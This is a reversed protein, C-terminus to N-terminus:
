ADARMIESHEVALARYHAAMERYRARSIADKAEDARKEFMAARDRLDVPNAMLSRWFDLQGGLWVYISALPTQALRFRTLDRSHTQDFRPLASALSLQLDFADYGNVFQHLALLAATSDVKM